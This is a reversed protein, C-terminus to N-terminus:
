SGCRRGDLGFLLEPERGAALPVLKALEPRYKGPATAASAGTARRLSDRDLVHALDGRM